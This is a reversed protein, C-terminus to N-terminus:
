QDTTPADSRHAWFRRDALLLVLAVGCWVAAYLWTTRAAAAPDSWLQQPHVIGETAHAVLTLLASGGTHNFLWAYWITVAVTGLFDSVVVTPTAGFAPLLWLPLHWCAVLLSLILTARLRSRGRQLGPQALGRWGPEEALPGDLPNVLRVVFVLLATQPALQALVSPQGAGLTVNLGVTAAVVALPVAVAVAYWLSRVRWRLLRRGLERFGPRGQTLGVVILAALLPGPAFFLGFPVVLAWTLLYTLIFFGAM